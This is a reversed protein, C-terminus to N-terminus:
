VTPTIDSTTASINDSKNTRRNPFVFRADIVEKDATITYSPLAQRDGAQYHTHHHYHYTPVTGVCTVSIDGEIFGASHRPSYFLWGGAMSPCPASSQCALGGRPTNMDPGVLWGGWGSSDPHFYVFHQGGQQKYVPTTNNNNDVMTYLGAKSHQHTYCAGSLRIMLSRCCGPTNEVVPYRPQPTPYYSQRTTTTTYIHPRETTSYAPSYTPPQTTTRYEPYRPTQRGTHCIDECIKEWTDALYECDQASRQVISYQDQSIQHGSFANFLNAVLFGEEIELRVVDGPYLKVVTNATCSSSLTASCGAIIKKTGGSGRAPYLYLATTLSSVASSELHYNLHYLGEEVCKLSGFMPQFDLNHLSLQSTFHVFRPSPGPQGALFSFFSATHSIRIVTSLSLLTSLIM